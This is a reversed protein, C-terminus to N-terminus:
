VDLGLDHLEQRLQKPSEYTIAHMGANQAALTNRVKDDVLVVRAVDIGLRRAALGYIELDPKRLGVQASIVVDDFLGSLTSLRRLYDALSITANSLM